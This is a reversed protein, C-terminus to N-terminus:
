SVPSVIVVAVRGLHHAADVINVGRRRKGLSDINFRLFQPTVPSLEVDMYGSGFQLVEDRDGSFDAAFSAHSTVAAAALGTSKLFRRLNWMTGTAKNLAGDSSTNGACSSM